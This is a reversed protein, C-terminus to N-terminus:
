KRKEKEFGANKLYRITEKNNTIVVVRKENNGEGIKDKILIKYKKKRAWVFLENRAYTTKGIECHEPNDRHNYSSIWNWVPMNNINEFILRVFLMKDVYVSQEDSNEILKVDFIDEM